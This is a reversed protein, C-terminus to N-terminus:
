AIPQDRSVALCEGCVRRGEGHEPLEGAEIGQEERYLQWTHEDTAVKGAATKAVIGGQAAAAERERRLQEASMPVVPADPRLKALEAQVALRARSNASGVDYGSKFSLQTAESCRAGAREARM